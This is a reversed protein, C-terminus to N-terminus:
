SKRAQENEKTQKLTCAEPLSNTFKSSYWYKFKYASFTVIELVCFCASKSKWNRKKLLSGFSEYPFNLKEIFYYQGIQILM